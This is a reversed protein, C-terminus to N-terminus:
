KLNLWLLVGGIVVVSGWGIWEVYQRIKPEMKPGLFYALAAVLYFQGARGVISALVFPILPMALVGATITFIKYPIPSFGAMLVVWVGYDAFWNRAKTMQEAYRSFFPEVLEWAFAGIFYGLVGGLVSFLLTLAALRWAKKPQALSMPLLM